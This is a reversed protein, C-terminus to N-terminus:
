CHCFAFFYCLNSIFLMLPCKEERKLSTSSRNQKLQNTNSLWRFLWLLGHLNLHLSPLCLRLNQSNSIPQGLKLTQDTIVFKSFFIFRNENTITFLEVEFDTVSLLSLKSYHGQFRAFVCKFNGEGIVFSM